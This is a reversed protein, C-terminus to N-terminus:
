RMADNGAQATGGHIRKRMSRWHGYQDGKGPDFDEIDQLWFRFWDLNREYASVMHRPQFKRHPEDPFVYMDARYERMLPIAYDLAYIYEEEPMQFLVPAVIKDLNYTPSIRRWQDPTDAPSGLGWIGRVASKFMEGKASGILYYIPTVSPSTVSVASLLDTKMAVWLAVESGFSLGGMGVRSRDIHGEAALFDVASRVANLAGDFRVIPDANLAPANICLTSIGAEALSALPWEDGMGGRLFGTCRYYNIFLPRNGAGGKRGVFLQGSYERGSEDQWRLLRSSVSEELDKALAANPEFLVYRQGTDIDIRELRPPRDAEAAVCALAKVSIGCATSRDRGGSITGRSTVIPRVEGTALDWLFISQSEGEEPVIVTFLVENGGPRWQVSTIAKGKCAKAECKLSSKQGKGPMISLESNESRRTRDGGDARVLVAIRGSRPDRVESLTTPLANPDRREPTPVLAVDLPSLARREGTGLDIEWWRDPVGGLIPGRTFWIGTYRQTALRGDVLSSRFLGAGVPVTDDIRIGRHYEDQEARIVEDRPAGVSYRLKRGDESLTFQRVDAPDFTIAEAGSGDAAARWVDVRGELLARYYVFNGDHSWRAAAPFSGGASDRLPIGGDGVRHPPKSGDMEQVYWVSDYTNREVSAQETRYVVRHGDPSVVPLSLDVVEVLRKPSVTQACALGVTLMLSSGVLIRNVWARKVVAYMSM